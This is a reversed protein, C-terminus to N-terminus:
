SLAEEACRDRECDGVWERVEEDRVPNREFEAQEEASPEPGDMLCLGSDAEITATM